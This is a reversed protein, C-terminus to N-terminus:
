TVIPEPHLPYIWMFIATKQQVPETPFKGFVKTLCPSFALLSGWCDEDIGDLGDIGAM